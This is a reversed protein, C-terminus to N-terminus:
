LEWGRRKRDKVWEEFAAQAEAKSNYEGGIPKGKYKLGVKGARPTTFAPTAVQKKREEAKKKQSAKAKEVRERVGKAPAKKVPAEEPKVGKEQKTPKPTPRPPNAALYQARKIAKGIDGNTERLATKIWPSVKSYVASNVNGFEDTLEAKLQSFASNQTERDDIGKGGPGAKGEMEQTLKRTEAKTKALGAELKEIELGGKKLTQAYQRATAAAVSKIAPNYKMATAEDIKEDKRRANGNEGIYASELFYEAEGKDNIVVRPKADRNIQKAWAKNEAEATIMSQPNAAAMVSNYAEDFNKFGMMVPRDQKTDYGKGVLEMGELGQLEPNATYFAAKDEPSVQNMDKVDLVDLGDPNLSQAQTLLKIAKENNGANRAAVARAALSKMEEIRRTRKLNEQQMEHSEQARREQAELRKDTADERAIRRKRDEFAQWNAGIQQAGAMVDAMTTNGWFINGM